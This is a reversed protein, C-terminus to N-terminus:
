IMQMAKKFSIKKNDISSTVEILKNIAEKNKLSDICCQAVLRRPISGNIQTDEKTYNINESEINENEKLGGPRIITWEFNSNQLFNEGIKKWILILGFLNLPHFLKGTCLSSVLIVRKIGVRKCSELQRYVGLADVKAPGTLDLSARAGTAIVLADMDKLAKDLDEKKDLSVRITELNKLGEKVKSNKRIIQRVKFGKMVAEESIRYGTKGSAGTIAIKM